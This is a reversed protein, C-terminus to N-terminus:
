QQINKISQLLNQADEKKYTTSNSSLIRKLLVSAQDYNKESLYSLALYWRSSEKFTFDINQLTSLIEISKDSEGSNLHSMAMYFKADPGSQESLCEIAIKYNKKNYDGMCKELPSSNDSMNTIRDGYPEFYQDFLKPQKSNNLVFYASLILLFSAAAALWKRNTSKSRNKILQVQEVKERIEEKEIYTLGDLSLLFAKFDANYKNDNMLREEHVKIEHHNASQSTIKEFNELDQM